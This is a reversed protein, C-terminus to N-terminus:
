RRVEGETAREAPYKTKTSWTNMATSPQSPDTAQQDNLPTLTLLSQTLLPQLLPGPV